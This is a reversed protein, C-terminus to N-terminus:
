KKVKYTNFYLSPSQEAKLSKYLFYQTFTSEMPDFSGLFHLICSACLPAISIKM